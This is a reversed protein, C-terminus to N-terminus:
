LRCERGVRTCCCLFGSAHGVQLFIPARQTDQHNSRNAGTGSRRAFQYGFSCWEKEVLVCFGRLTRYAPDLMLEALSTLQATRDWGDSCHVLVSIRSQLLNAVRVAGALVISVLRSTHTPPCV